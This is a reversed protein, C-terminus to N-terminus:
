SGTEFIGIEGILLLLLLGLGVLAFIALLTATPRTPKSPTQEPSPEVEASTEVPGTGTQADPQHSDPTTM